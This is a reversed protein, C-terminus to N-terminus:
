VDRISKFWVIPVQRGGPHKGVHDIGRSGVVTAFRARGSGAETIGCGSIERAGCRETSLPPVLEGAGSVEVCISGHKLPELNRAQFSHLELNASLRVVDQVM